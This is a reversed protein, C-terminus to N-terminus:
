PPERSRRSGDRRWRCRRALDEISGTESGAPFRAVPEQFIPDDQQLLGEYIFEAMPISVALQQLHLRQRRLRWKRLLHPLKMGAIIAQPSLQSACGHCM